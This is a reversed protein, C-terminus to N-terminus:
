NAEFCPMGALIHYPRFTSGGHDTLDLKIVPSMAYVRKKLQESVSKRSGEIM